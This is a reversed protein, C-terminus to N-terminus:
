GLAGMYARLAALDLARALKASDAADIIGYAEDCYKAFFAWTMQHKQGWTVCVPGRTTYGPVHVYHGGWSNVAGSPGAVVDWPKGSQFQAQASRPLALGIGVGVDLVIAQQVERRAARDLETFAAIRYRKRAAIWGDRRWRTLSDLVVLGTDEGGTEDLYEAIVEADTITLRAGQELLEFRLTQHARGAIVCDGYRDNAFMPVPIGPHALDFDYEAPVKVPARLLAAFKLNRRDRRAPAKGLKYIPHRDIGKSRAM